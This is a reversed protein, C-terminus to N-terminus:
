MLFLQSAKSNYVISPRNGILLLSVSCKIFCTALTGGLVILEAKDIRHGNHHLAALRSRTQGYPDFEHQAARQAGPERSLYSKPMRVDSPCFICRGPCPFPRTLVAVPTVGSVSRTPCTRLKEAFALEAEGLEQQRHVTLEVQPVERHHQLVQERILEALLLQEPQDSVAWSTKLLTVRLAISAIAAVWPWVWDSWVLASSSAMARGVSKEARMARFM